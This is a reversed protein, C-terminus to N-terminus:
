IGVLKDALMSYLPMPDPLGANKCEHKITRGMAYVLLRAEDRTLGTIDYTTPPTVVPAPKNIKIEM